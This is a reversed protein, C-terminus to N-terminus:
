PGTRRLPLPNSTAARRLVNLWKSIPDGTIAAMTRAYAFLRDDPRTGHVTWEVYCDHDDAHCLNTEGASAMGCRDFTIKRDCLGCNNSM